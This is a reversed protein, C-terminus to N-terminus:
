DSRICCMCLLVRKISKWATTFIRRRPAPQQPVSVDPDLCGVSDVLLARSETEEVSVKDDVNVMEYVGLKPGNVFVDTAPGQEITSKVSNAAMETSRVYEDPLAEDDGCVVLLLDEIVYEVFEDVHENATARATNIITTIFEDVARKDIVMMQAM